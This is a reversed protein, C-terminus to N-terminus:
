ARRARFARLLEPEDQAQIEGKELADLRDEAEARWAKQISPDGSELSEQLAEILHVRELPPLQAAQMKLTAIDASM